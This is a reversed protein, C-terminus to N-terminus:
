SFTRPPNAGASVSPCKPFSNMAHLSLTCPQQHPPCSPHGLLGASCIYCLCVHSFGQQAAQSVSSAWQSGPVLARIEKARSALMGQKSTALCRVSKTTSGLQTLTCPPSTPGQLCTLHSTLHSISTVAGPLASLFLAWTRVSM